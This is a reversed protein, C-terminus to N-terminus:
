QNSFSWVVGFLISYEWSSAYISLNNNEYDMIVTSRLALGKYVKASATLRSYIYPYVKRLEPYAEKIVENFPSVLSQQYSTVFNMTLLDSTRYNANLLLMPRWEYHHQYMDNKLKTHSNIFLIKEKMEPSVANIKATNNVEWSSWDYVLGLGFNIKLKPYIVKLPHFLMGTQFRWQLGRGTNNQLILLLEPYLPRVVSKQATVPRYKHLGSSLNIYHNYYLNGNTRRDLKQRFNLELDSHDFIYNCSAANIIRYDPYADTQKQSTYFQFDLDIAFSHTNLSDLKDIKKGLIEIQSFASVAFFCLLV